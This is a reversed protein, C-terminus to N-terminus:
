AKASVLQHYSTALSLGTATPTGREAILASLDDRLADRAEPELDGAAARFPPSFALYCDAIEPPALPFDLGGEVRDTRMGAQGALLSELGEPRSLELARALRQDGSYRFALRLMDGIVGDPDWAAVALIGGKRCVRRMETAAAAPDPTVPLALFSAVAHFNGDSFPLKEAPAAKFRVLLGENKAWARGRSLFPERPDVGTVDAGARAAAISVNGTGCGVDLLRAGGALPLRDVFDAGASEAARGIIGFDRRRKEHARGQSERNAM